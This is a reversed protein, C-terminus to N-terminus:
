WLLIIINRGKKNPNKNINKEENKSNEGNEANETWQCGLSSNVHFSKKLNSKNLNTATVNENKVSAGTPTSDPKKTKKSKTASGTAEVNLDNSKLFDNNSHVENVDDLSVWKRSLNVKQDSPPKDTFKSGNNDVKTDIGNNSIQRNLTIKSFKDNKSTKKGIQNKIKAEKADIKEQKPTSQLPVSKTLVDSYTPRMPKVEAVQKQKKVGSKLTKASFDSTARDPQETLLQQLGETCQQPSNVPPQPTVEQQNLDFFTPSNQTQVNGFPSYTGNTNSAWNGVLNEILHTRNPTPTMNQQMLLKNKLAEQHTQQLIVNDNIYLQDGSNSANQQSLVNQQQMQMEQNAFLPCERNEPYVPMYLPMDQNTMVYQPTQGPYLVYKNGHMDMNLHKEFANNQMEPVFITNQAMFNNYAVNQSVFRSNPDIQYPVPEPTRGFHQMFHNQPLQNQAYESWIHSDTNAPPSTFGLPIYQGDSNQIDATMHEIMQEVTVNSGKKTQDGMKVDTVVHM